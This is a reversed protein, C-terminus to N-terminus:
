KTGFDFQTRYVGCGPRAAFKMSKALHVLLEGAEESTARVVSATQVTGDEGIEAAVTGVMRIQKAKKQDEKSLKGKMVLAPPKSCDTNKAKEHKSPRPVALPSASAFLLVLALLIAPRHTM